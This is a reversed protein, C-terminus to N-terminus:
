HVLALAFSLGGTRRSIAEQLQPMGLHWRAGGSSRIIGDRHCLRRQRLRQTVGPHTTPQFPHISPDSSPTQHAVRIEAPSSPGASFGCTVTRRYPYASRPTARRPTSPYM